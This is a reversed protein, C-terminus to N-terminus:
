IDFVENALTQAKTNKELITVVEEKTKVHRLKAISAASLGKPYYLVDQLLPSTEDWGLVDKIENKELYDVHIYEDVRGNRYIFIDM